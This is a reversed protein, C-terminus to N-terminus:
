GRKKRPNEISEEADGAAAGGAPVGAAAGAAVAGGRVGAAARQLLLTQEAILDRQTKWEEFRDSCLKIQEEEEPTALGSALYARGRRLVALADPASEPVLPKLLEQVQSSMPETTQGGKAVWGAAFQAHEWLKVSENVVVRRNVVSQVSLQEASWGRRELVESVLTDPADQVGEVREAALEDGLELEQAKAIVVM